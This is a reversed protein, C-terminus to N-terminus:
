QVNYLCGYSIERCKDDIANEWDKTVGVVAVQNPANSIDVSCIGVGLASLASVDEKIEGDLVDELLNYMYESYINYSQYSSYIPTAAGLDCSEGSKLGKYVYISEGALVAFYEFDKRTDNTVTGSIGVWDPNVNCTIQGLERAEKNQYGAYFYSDDFNSDPRIGFSYRDGERIIHYRYDTPDDSDGSYYYDDSLLAGVFDYQDRIKLNWESHDADYCYLYTTADSGGDLAEVTVSYAVTDVIEFGRGALFVLFVGLLTGIPVAVWYLERKKTVILVIYLVPGVLIVYAIVIFKLLGFNLKNYGKSLVRLMRSTFRKNDNANYYSSNSHRSSAFSLAEDLIGEIYDEKELDMQSFDAKGLEVLSFPLISVAGDGMAEGLSNTYYLTSYKNKKDKLAAMEVVKAVNMGYSVAYPDDEEVSYTGEFSVELYDELGKLTDEGSKGTGVILTGGNGNWQAIADLQEETLVDTHFEDIVLFTLTSLVMELDDAKVEIVKVPMYNGQYYLNRGGLELYTLDYFRDSLVGILLMQSQDVLLSKFEKSASVKDKKDLLIVNITGVTEDTESHPLRVMFQKESGQPLTLVTDYATPKRYDKEVIVRVTGEWDRSLNEIQLQVNYADSDVSLLEAKISFDIDEARATIKVGILLIGFVAAALLFINLITKHQVIKQKM